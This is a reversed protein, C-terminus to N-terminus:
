RMNKIEEHFAKYFAVAKGVLKDYNDEKSCNSMGTVNFDKNYYCTYNGLYIILESDTNEITPQPSKIPKPQPSKFPKLPLYKPPYNRMQSEKFMGWEWLWDNELVMFTDSVGDNVLESV